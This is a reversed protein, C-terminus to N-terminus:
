EMQPSKLQKSLSKVGRCLAGSPPSVCGELLLGMISSAGGLREQPLHEQLWAPGMRQIKAWWRTQGMAGSLSRACASGQGVKCHSPAALFARCKMRIHVQMCRASKAEDLCQMKPYPPPGQLQLPVESPPSHLWPEPATTQGCPLLQPQFLHFPCLLGWRLPCCFGRWGLFFRHDAVNLRAWSTWM